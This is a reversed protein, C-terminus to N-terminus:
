AQIKNVKLAELDAQLRDFKVQLAAFQSVESQGM